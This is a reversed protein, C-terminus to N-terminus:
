KMDFIREIEEQLNYEVTCNGIRGLQIEISQVDQLFSEMIQDATSICSFNRCKPKTLFKTKGDVPDVFLKDLNKSLFYKKKWNKKGENKNSTIQAPTSIFVNDSQEMRCLM